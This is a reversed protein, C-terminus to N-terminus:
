GGNPESEKGKRPADKKRQVTRKRIDKGAMLVNTAAWHDAKRGGQWRNRKQNGQIIELFVMVQKQKKAQSGHFAKFAIDVLQSLNMGLVGDIQELKRRIDLAKEGSSTINVM